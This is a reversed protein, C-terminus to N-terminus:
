FRSSGPTLGLETDGPSRHPSRIHLVYWPSASKLALPCVVSIERKACGSFEATVTRLRLTYSTHIHGLLVKNISGSTPVEIIKM